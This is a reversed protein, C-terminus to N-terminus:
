YTKEWISFVSNIPVRYVTGSETWEVIISVNVKDIYADTESVTLPTLTVYRRYM